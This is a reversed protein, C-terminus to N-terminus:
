KEADGNFLEEVTYGEAAQREAKRRAAEEDAKRQMEFAPDSAKVKKHEGDKNHNYLTHPLDSQM